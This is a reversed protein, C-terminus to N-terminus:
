TIQLSLSLAEVCTLFQSGILLPNDGNCRPMEVEELVYTLFQSGILLPNDRIVKSM